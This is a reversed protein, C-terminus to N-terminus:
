TCTSICVITLLYKKRYLKILLYFKGENKTCNSQEDNERESTQFLQRRCKKVHSDLILFLFFIEGKKLIYTIQPTNQYKIIMM